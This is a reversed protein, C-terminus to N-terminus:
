QFSSFTKLPEYTGSAQSSEWANPSRLFSSIIVKPQSSCISQISTKIDQLSLSLYSLNSLYISLYINSTDLKLEAFHNKVLLYPVIEFLFSSLACCPLKWYPAQCEMPYDSSVWDCCMSFLWFSVSSTFYGFMHFCHLSEILFHCIFAM